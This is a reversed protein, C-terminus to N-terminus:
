EEDKRLHRVIRDAANNETIRDVPLLLMEDGLATKEAILSPKM